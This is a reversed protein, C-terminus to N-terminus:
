RFWEPCKEMIYVKKKAYDMGKTPMTNNGKLKSEYEDMSKIVRAPVGAAVAGQPIDKTVVSGAGIVVNDGITVGPLITSNMGIFVNCGIVIPAFFDASKYEERNRFCWMSGDHTILRCGNTIEVHNGVTVLYPETGFMKQPDDLFRCGEGCNVGLRKAIDVNSALGLIYMIRYLIKKVRGM